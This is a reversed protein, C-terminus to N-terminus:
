FSDSLLYGLWAYEGAQGQSQQWIAQQETTMAAQSIINLM